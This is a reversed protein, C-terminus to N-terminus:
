STAPCPCMTAHRRGITWTSFAVVEYLPDMSRRDGPTKDALELVRRREVAFAVEAAGRDRAVDGLGRQRDADAAELALEADREDAAPV